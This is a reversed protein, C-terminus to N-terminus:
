LVGDHEPVVLEPVAPVPEAAAPAEPRAAPPLEAALAPTPPLAFVPPEPDSGAPNQSVLSMGAALFTMVNLNKFRVFPFNASLSTNQLKLFPDIESVWEIASAGVYSM